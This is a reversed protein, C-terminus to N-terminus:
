PPSAVPPKATGQPRYTLATNGACCRPRQPNAKRCLWMRERHDPLLQEAKSHPHLPSPDEAIGTAATALAPRATLSCCATQSPPQRRGAKRLMAHAASLRM